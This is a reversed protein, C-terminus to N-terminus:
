GFHLRVKKEGGWSRPKANSFNIVGVLPHLTEHNNLDNYEKVTDFRFTKKM